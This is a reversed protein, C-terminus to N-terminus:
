LARLLTIRIPVSFFIPSAQEPRVPEVTQLPPLCRKMGGWWAPLGRSRPHALLSTLANPFPSPAAALRKRCEQRPSPLRVPKQARLQTHNLSVSVLVRLIIQIALPVRVVAGLIRTHAIVAPQQRIHGLSHTESMGLLQLSQVPLLFLLTRSYSRSQHRPTASWNGYSDRTWARVYYDGPAYNAYHTVGCVYDPGSCTWSSIPPITVAPAAARAAPTLVLLVLTFFFVIAIFVRRAIFRMSMM